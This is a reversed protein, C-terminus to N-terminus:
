ERYQAVLNALPGRLSGEGDVQGAPSIRYRDGMKEAILGGDDARQVTWDADALRTRLEESAVTSAGSTTDAAAPDDDPDVPELRSEPFVYCKVNRERAGDLLEDPSCDRWEPWYRDLGSEVFAVTVAPEGADYGPNDAAVTHDPDEAATVPTEAIPTGPRAVVVALDPDDDERDIVHQGPTIQTDNM